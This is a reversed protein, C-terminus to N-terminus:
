GLVFEYVILGALSDSTWEISISDQIDFKYRAATIQIWAEAM